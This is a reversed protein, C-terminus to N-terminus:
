SPMFPNFMKGQTDYINLVILKGNRHIKAEFYEKHRNEDCYLKKYTNFISTKGIAADGALVVRFKFDAKSCAMAITEIDSNELPAKWTKM